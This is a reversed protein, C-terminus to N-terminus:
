DEADPWITKGVGNTLIAKKWHMNKASKDFILYIYSRPSIEAVRM